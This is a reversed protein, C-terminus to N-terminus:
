RGPLGPLAPVAPTAAVPPTIAPTAAGPAPTTTTTV